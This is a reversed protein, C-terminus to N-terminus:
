EGSSWFIAKKVRITEIWNLRLFTKFPSFFLSKKLFLSEKLMTACNKVRHRWWDNSSTMRWEIKKKTQCQRAARRPRFKVRSTWFRLFDELTPGNPGLPDRPFLIEDGKFAFQLLRSHHFRCENYQPSEHRLELDVQRKTSRCFYYLLFLSACHYFVLSMIRRDLTRM